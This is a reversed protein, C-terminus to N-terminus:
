FYSDSLKTLSFDIVIDAIIAEWLCRNFQQPITTNAAFIHSLYRVHWHSDSLIETGRVRGDSNM